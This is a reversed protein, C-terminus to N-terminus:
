ILSGTIFLTYVSTIARFVTVNFQNVIVSWMDTDDALNTQSYNHWTISCKSLFMVRGTISRSAQYTCVTASTQRTAYFVVLAIMINYQKYKRVVGFDPSIWCWASVSISIHLVHKGSEKCLWINWLISLLQTHMAEDLLRDWFHKTSYVKMCLLTGTHSTIIKHNLM